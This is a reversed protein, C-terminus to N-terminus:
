LLIQFKLNPYLPNIKALINKTLGENIEYNNYYFTVGKINNDIYIIECSYFFSTCFIYALLIKKKLM